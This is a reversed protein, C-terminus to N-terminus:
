EERLGKSEDRGPGRVALIDSSKPSELGVSSLIVLPVLAEIKDLCGDLGFILGGQQDFESSTMRVILGVWPEFNQCGNRSARFADTHTSRQM